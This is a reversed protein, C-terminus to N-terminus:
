TNFTFGGNYLCQLWSESIFLLAYQGVILLSHCAIILAAPQNEVDFGFRRQWYLALMQCGRKVSSAFAAMM